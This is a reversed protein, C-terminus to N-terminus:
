LTVLNPFDERVAAVVGVRKRPGARTVLVDGAKVGLEPRPVLSLPLSKNHQSHFQCWQVATTKLIGWGGASVPVEDCQPSWGADIGEVVDCITAKIWKSSHPEMARELGKAFLDDAEEAAEKRLRQAEHVQAALEEIRAM